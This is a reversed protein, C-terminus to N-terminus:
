TVSVSFFTTSPDLAVALPLSFVDSRGATCATREILSCAIFSPKHSDVTNKWTSAGFTVCGKNGAVDDKGWSNGVNGLRAKEL